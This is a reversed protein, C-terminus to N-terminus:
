FVSKKRINFSNFIQKPRGAVFFKASPPYLGRKLEGTKQKAAYFDKSFYSGVNEM